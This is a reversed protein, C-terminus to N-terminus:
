ELLTVWIIGGLDRRQADTENQTDRGYLILADVQWLHWAYSGGATFRYRDTNVPLKLWRDAVYDTVEAGGRFSFVNYAAYEVGLRGINQIFEQARFNNAGYDNAEIDYSNLVYDVAVTLGAPQITYSAGAGVSRLQTPNDFLIVDEFRPRRAWGDRNMSRGSVGLVLPSNEPAYRALFRFDLTRDQWYGIQEPPSTKGSISNAAYGYSFITGVKVRDTTVFNQVGIEFGKMVETMSYSPFSRIDYIGDGYYRRISLDYGENTGDFSTRNQIRMPRLVLGFLWERRPQLLLGINGRAYNHEIQPRTYYDKLGTSIDYDFGAGIAAKPSLQLSYDVSMAPGWYKIDGTTLDTLYFPDNYQDRELSHWQERQWLREYRFIGSAAQRDSLRKRGEFGVFATNLLHPDYPRKLDGQQEDISFIFRVWARDFTSGLYAPNRGYDYPNIRNSRDELAISCNGMASTRIEDSKAPPTWAALLIASVAAVLCYSKVTCRREM